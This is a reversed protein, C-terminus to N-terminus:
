ECYRLRVVKLLRSNTTPSVWAVDGSPFNKFDGRAPIGVNLTEPQGLKQGSADVMQFKSSSILSSGGESWALIFGRQGYKAIKVSSENTPTETVWVKKNSSSQPSSPNFETFAVDWNGRAKSSFAVGVSGNYEVIGGFRGETGGRCDGKESSLLYQANFLVGKEPYCDSICVPVFDGQALTLRMDMSHSCGWKWGGSVVKGQPDIFRLSDGEHGGNHVGYYAGYKSGNWLLSGYHFDNSTDSQDIGTLKTTFVESGNESMRVIYMDSGRITLLAAGDEHGFMDRFIDGKTIMDPGKRRDHTDLPTIHIKRSQDVWAIKSEGNPLPSIIFPNEVDNSMMSNEDATSPISINEDVQVDTMSIRDQFSGCRCDSDLSAPCGSLCIGDGSKCESLTGPSINGITGGLPPNTRKSIDDSSRYSKTQVCSFLLLFCIAILAICKNM